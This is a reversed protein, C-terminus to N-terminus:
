LKEIKSKIIKIKGLFALIRHYRSLRTEYSSRVYNFPEKELTDYLPSLAGFPLDELEAVASLIIVGSDDPLVVTDSEVPIEAEFVYCQKAIIDRDEGHMHTFEKALTCTKIYGKEGLGYLDWAGIAECCDPVFVTKEIDGNKFVATKDGDASTILFRISKAGKPLKIKQGSCIVANNKGKGLNFLEGRCEVTETFQEAPVTFGHLVGDKRNENSSTICVNYPLDITETEANRVEDKFSILKLAFTKVEYPAIDFVLESNEVVAKELEEEGANMVQASDIGSGIKFRVNNHEKGEGENVRIIIRDGRQEKKIARLIVGGDSLSAFSFEAPLIGKNNLPAAFVRMPQCFQAGSKQTETLEKGAHSFIGFSYRNRGLDMQSQQSGKLYNGRPTHIGTLRVTDAAPHDWGYKCESLVSVGYEDNSIDAFNQAPVEYLKPTNLGRKIVGLGLDYSAEENSVTFTFPTKLLRRNERWEIENDIQLVDGCEDLSVRQVFVSEGASRRTEVSVKSAGNQIIKFRPARAYEVPNATVESYDLEWAPWDNSGNYKHIAMSIPAKLLEKGLEKDYVSAIDGNDDFVVKYKRNELTRESVSLGTNESYPEDAASICYASIGNPLVRASFTVEGNEYQSPVTEGKTNKVSVYKVDKPLPVTCSVAGKGEWGTPNTVVVAFGSNFPINMNSAIRSVATEYVSAFNNLSLFYDNWSRKYVRQLSTGPLDDHFQHAIVRKWATDIVNQAYDTAGLWMALSSFREAADALQENHKNWRKGIARSTYGGVGHDTSVLENNWVPLKAKQEASLESDMIRFVKDVSVIEANIDSQSNKRNESVATKVSKQRPAGGRDGIGHLLYTMPLDYKEINNKLKAIAKKHKRVSKLMGDYKQGDLSAYIRSGDVGQWFGLDFPIGYASSWTLKQTTFGKLGAHKIVSPLAYGFGFCDPLYIDVSKKGFKENFYSNGYLVNRFLAEPSPVNVDGNEYASGTVFWRNEDIYKKLREFKEPYYEEMLEYRYSGEFSFVYEPYKEFYRFNDDLTRPIYKGITKEFDWNWVTDLHATAVTYVTPKKNEKM